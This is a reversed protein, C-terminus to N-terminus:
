KEPVRLGYGSQHALEKKTVGYNGDSDYFKTDGWKFIKSQTMSLPVSNQGFSANNEKSVTSGSSRIGATKMSAPIELQKFLPSLGSRKRNNEFKQIFDDDESEDTSNEGDSKELNTTKKVFNGQIL